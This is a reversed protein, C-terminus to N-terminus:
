TRLRRALDTRLQTQHNARAFGAGLGIVFSLTLLCRRAFSFQPQGPV